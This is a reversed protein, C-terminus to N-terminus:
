RTSAWDRLFPAVWRFACEDDPPLRDPAFWRLESVDDAPAMEGSVVRAEWALNLVSAVEVDEPGLSKEALALAESLPAAAETYRGAARYHYAEECLSRVHLKITESNDPRSNSVRWATRISRIRTAAFSVAGLALLLSLIILKSKTDRRNM